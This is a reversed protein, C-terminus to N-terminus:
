PQKGGKIIQIIEDESVGLFKLEGVAELLKETLKGRRGADVNERGAAFSGKGPISYIYGGAELERYARQITNLNIALAVSLERVSPLKEEPKIAGSVIQARYEDMIQEYIPRNDWRRM